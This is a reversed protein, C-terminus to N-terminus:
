HKYKEALMYVDAHGRVNRILDSPHNPDNINHEYDGTYLFQLLYHLATEDDDDMEIVRTHAEQRPYANPRSSGSSSIGQFIRSM